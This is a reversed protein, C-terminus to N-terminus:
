AGAGDAEDLRVVADRLEALEAEDVVLHSPRGLDSQSPALCEAHSAPSWRIVRDCDQDCSWGM